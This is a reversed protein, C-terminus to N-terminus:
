HRFLESGAYFSESISKRIEQNVLFSQLNLTLTTIHRSRGTGVNIEFIFHSFIQVIRLFSRFHDTETPFFGKGSNEFLKGHM